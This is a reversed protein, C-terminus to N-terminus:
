RPNDRLPVLVQGAGGGAAPPTIASYHLGSSERRKSRLARHSRPSVLNARERLRQLRSNAYVGPDRGAADPDIRARELRKTRHARHGRLEVTHRRLRDWNHAIIV